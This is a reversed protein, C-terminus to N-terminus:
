KKWASLNMDIMILKRMTNRTTLFLEPVAVHHAFFWTSELLAAVLQQQLRPLPIKSPNRFTVEGFQKFNGGCRYMYTFKINM